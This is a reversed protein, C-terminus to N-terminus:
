AGFGFDVQFNGGRSEISFKDRPCLLRDPHKDRGSEACRKLREHIAWLIKDATRIEAVFHRLFLLVTQIDERIDTISSGARFSEM